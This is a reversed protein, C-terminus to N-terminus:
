WEKRDTPIVIERGARADRLVKWRQAWCYASFSFLAVWPLAPKISVMGFLWPVGVLAVTGGTVILSVAALRMRLRVFTLYDEFIRQEGEARRRRADRERRREAEERDLIRRQREEWRRQTETMPLAPSNFVVDGHISGSQVVGGNVNGSLENRRSPQESM